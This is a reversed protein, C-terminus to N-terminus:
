FFFVFDNVCGDGWCGGSFEELLVILVVEFGLEGYGVESNCSVFFRM